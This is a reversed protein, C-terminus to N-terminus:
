FVMGVVNLIGIIILHIPYFLYFLYKMSPGKKGNYTLILLASIAVFLVNTMDWSYITYGWIIIIFAQYYKSNSAIYLAILLAIANSGYNAYRLLYYISIMFIIFIPILKVKNDQYSTIKDIYEFLILAMGLEYFINLQESILINIGNYRIFFPTILWALSVYVLSKDFKRDLIFYYYSLIMPIIMILIEFNYYFLNDILFIDTELNFYFALVFPIQSLIAFLHVRKIYILKNKTHMYGIVLTFAFIPLAMRGISRMFNFAEYSFIDSQSHQFYVAVHDILMTIMAILKLIFGSM